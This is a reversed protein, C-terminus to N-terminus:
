LVCSNTACVFLAWASGDVAHKPRDPGGALVTVDGAGSLAFVTRQVPDCFLIDSGRVALGRLWSLVM